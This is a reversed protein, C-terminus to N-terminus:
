AIARKGNMIASYLALFQKQWGRHNFTAAHREILTRALRLAEEASSRNGLLGYAQSRAYHLLPLAWERGKYAILTRDSSALTTATATADGRQIHVLLLRALTNLAVEDDDRMPHPTQAAFREVAVALFAAAQEWNGRQAHYQGVDGAFYAEFGDGLNVLTLDPNEIDGFTRYLTEAASTDGELLAAEGMFFTAQLHVLEDEDRNVMSRSKAALARAEATRGSRLLAFVLKNLGYAQEGVTQGRLAQLDYARQWTQYALEYSGIKSAILGLNDASILELRTDAMNRGITMAHQHHDLARQPDHDALLRGLRHYVTWQKRLDGQQNAFQLARQLAVEAEQLHGRMDALLARNIFTRYDDGTQEATALALQQRALGKARDFPFSYGWWYRIALLELLELLLDRERVAQLQAILDDDLGVALTLGEGRYIEFLYRYARVRALRAGDRWGEALTLLEDLVAQRKDRQGLRELLLQQQELLDFRRHNDGPAILKLAHDYHNAAEANAFRDAANRAAREYYRIAMEDDGATEWHHALVGDYAQTEDKLLGEMARAVERHYARRRAYPMSRYAAEQTLVHRFIYETEWLDRWGRPRILDQRSLQYLAENYTAPTSKMEAVLKRWFVRGVVAARQLLEKEAPALRDIRATLVGEITPPLSITDLPRTLRWSNGKQELVKDAVLTRIIEEMFFPNGDAHTRIKDLLDDPPKRWQLLATILSKSEVTDLPNLWLETFNGDLRAQTRGRLAMVEEADNVRSIIVFRIPLTTTLDFAQELLALSSPDTWHVDEFVLVLPQSEAVKALWRLVSLRVRVQRAEADLLVLQATDNRRLSLLSALFPLHEAGEEGMTEFLLERLRAFLVTDDSEGEVELWRRLLMAWPAYPQSATYSLSRGELWVIEHSEAVRSIETVLRSKGIGAEGLVFTVGGQLPTTTLRTLHERLATVESDRGIMPSRMGESALGRGSTPDSKPLLIRFVAVPQKLGKVPMTGLPEGEFRHALYKWTSEGVLVTNPQAASELRHALNVTDGVATYVTRGIGGMEGMMVRGTNIGVRVQLPKGHRPTYGAIAELIALGALAAREPDDEHAIPAGFMAMMGDGMLAGITGGMETVAHSMRQLAGNYVEHVEEADMSEALETSNVIDAFLITVRKREPRPDHSPLPPPAPLASAASTNLRTGCDGCFKQGESVPQHCAPCTLTLRIGCNSCFRATPSNTHNCTPCVM